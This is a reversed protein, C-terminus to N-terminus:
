FVLFVQFFAILYNNNLTQTIHYDNVYMAHLNGTKRIDALSYIAVGLIWNTSFIDYLKHILSIIIITM